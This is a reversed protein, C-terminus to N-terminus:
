VPKQAKWYCGALTPESVAWSHTPIAPHPASYPSSAHITDHDDRPSSILPPPVTVSFGFMGGLSLRRILVPHIFKLRSRCSSYLRELSLRSSRLSPHHHGLQDFNEEGAARHPYEGVDVVVLQVAYVASHRKSGESDPASRLGVTGKLVVVTWRVSQIRSCPSLM